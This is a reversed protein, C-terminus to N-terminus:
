DWYRSQSDIRRIFFKKDSMSVYRGSIQYLYKDSAISRDGFLKNLDSLYLM